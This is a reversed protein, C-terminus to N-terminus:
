AKSSGAGTEDPVSCYVPVCVLAYRNAIGRADAESQSRQSAATKRWALTADIDDTEMIGVFQRRDAPGDIVEYRTVKTIGPTAKVEDMHPGHLWQVFEPDSPADCMLLIIGRKKM